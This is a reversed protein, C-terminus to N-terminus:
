ANYTYEKKKKLLKKIRDSHHMQWDYKEDYGPRKIPTTKEIDVTAMICYRIADMTHNFSDVPLMDKGNQDPKLDKPEPYHYTSFEDITNICSRFVKLKDENILQYTEEIGIEIDNIAGMAMLGHFCFEKIYEPRSPDCHFEEIKYLDRFRVAAMVMESLRCGTKYHEAIQYRMGDKLVAYVIIVFPDTYGWDVGAMIRANEPILVPDIVHIEENFCDYVLGEAREFQGGYIMNFRRKEMTKQRQIYENMPFYPNESSNAQVILCESRIYPDNQHWKRIFDTYLWNLSYPSTVIHIPAECFSSRAQINDWFYRSYKGAEDCLISRIRTIGVVSDPDTGSRLWVTGGGSIRFCDNKKDWKGYTQMVQNFVPLTSQALIKYTPSTILFNDLPDTFTFYKITQSMVGCITKGWQIGTAAITIKKESLLVDNQKQSHPAFEV